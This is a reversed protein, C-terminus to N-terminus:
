RVEFLRWESPRHFDAVTHPSTSAAVPSAGHTADYRCFSLRWQGGPSVVCPLKVLARWVNEQKHLWTHSVLLDTDEFYDAHRQEGARVKGIVTEDPFRLHLRYNEPTVHVETYSREGEQQMFVEFADGLEWTPQNHRDALNFIDEDEMEALAWLGSERRGVKVQGPKFRTDSTPRWRQEFDLAPLAAFAAQVSTEEDPVFVSLEFVTLLASMRDM